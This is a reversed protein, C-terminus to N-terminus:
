RAPAKKYACRTKVAGGTTATAADLAGKATTIEAPRVRGSSIWGCCSARAPSHPFLRVATKRAPRAVIPAVRRRQGFTELRRHIAQRSRSQAFPPPGASQLAAKALEPTASQVAGSIASPRNHAGLRQHLAGNGQMSSLMVRGAGYGLRARQPRPDAGAAARRSGRGRGSRGTATSAQSMGATNM